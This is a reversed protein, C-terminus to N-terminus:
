KKSSFSIGTVFEISMISSSYDDGFYTRNLINTIGKKGRFEAFWLADIKMPANEKSETIKVSIGISSSILLSFRNFLYTEDVNTLQNSQNYTSGYNWLLYSVEPGLSVYFAKSIYYKPHLALNVFASTTKIETINGIPDALVKKNGSMGVNPFANLAWKPSLRKQVQLGGMPYFINSIDDETTKETKFGSYGLGLSLQILFDKNQANAKLTTGIGISIVLIIKILDNMHNRQIFGRIM